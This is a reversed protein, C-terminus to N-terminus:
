DTPFSLIFTSGRGVESEVQIDGDYNEVIKKCTALGLGTGEYKVKNKIRKFPEFVKELYEKEMGIGNDVVKIIYCKNQQIAKINIKPIHKVLVNVNDEETNKPQYKIGNSILNQFLQLMASPNANVTPLEDFEVVAEADEIRKHLNEKVTKLTDNLNVAEREKGATGAASYQLLDDLLNNMRESTSNIYQVASLEMETIGEKKTLQKELLEAFGAISRLPEKMDHSAVGAFRELDANKANIEQIHEKIKKRYNYNENIHFIAAYYGILISSLFGCFILAIPSSTEVIPEYYIFYVQIATFFVISLITIFKVFFKNDVLIAVTFPYLFVTYELGFDNGVCFVNLMSGLFCTFVFFYFAAKLRYQSVLWLVAAGVVIGGWALISHQYLGAFMMVVVLIFCIVLVSFAIKNLLKIRLIEAEDHEDTIGLHFVRKLHSKMLNNVFIISYQKM